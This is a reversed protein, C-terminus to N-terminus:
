DVLDNIKSLVENLVNLNSKSEIGEYKTFSGKKNYHFDIIARGKESQFFYRELFQNPREIMVIEINLLKLINSLKDYFLKLFPKEELFTLELTKNIQFINLQYDSFMKLKEQMRTFFDSKYNPQSM